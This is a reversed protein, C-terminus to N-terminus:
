SSQEDLIDNISTERVTEKHKRCVPIDDGDFEAIYPALVERDEAECLVCYKEENM